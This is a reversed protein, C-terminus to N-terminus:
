RTTLNNPDRNEISFPKPTLPRMALVAAIIKKKAPRKPKVNSVYVAVIHPPMGEMEKATFKRPKSM